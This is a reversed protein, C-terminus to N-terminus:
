KTVFLLAPTRDDIDIAVIGAEKGTPTGINSDPWCDWFDRVTELDTTADKFGHPTRPHKGPSSCDPDRCTCIGDLTISHLPFVSWGNEAYWIAAEKLTLEKRKQNKNKSM